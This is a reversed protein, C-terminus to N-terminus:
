SGALTNLEHSHVSKEGGVGVKLMFFDRPVERMGDMYPINVTGIM